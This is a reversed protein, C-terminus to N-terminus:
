ESERIAYLEIPEPWEGSRPAAPYPLDGFYIDAGLALDLVAYRANIERFQRETPWSTLM